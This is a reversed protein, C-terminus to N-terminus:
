KNTTKITTSANPTKPTIQGNQNQDFNVPGVNVVVNSSPRYIIAKAAQQFVLLVDDNQTDKFFQQQKKMVDANSVKFLVPDGAPLVMLKGLATLIKSKELDAAAAQQAAVKEPESTNQYTKYKMWGFYSGLLLIILALLGFLYIRNGMDGVNGTKKM